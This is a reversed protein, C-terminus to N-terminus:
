FPFTINEGKLFLKVPHHIIIIAIIIEVVHVGYRILFTLNHNAGGVWTPDHRYTAANWSLQDFVIHTIISIDLGHSRSWDMGMREM